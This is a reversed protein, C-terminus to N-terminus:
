TMIGVGTVHVNYLLKNFTGKSPSTSTTIIWVLYTMHHWVAECLKQLSVNREFNKYKMKNMGEAAAWLWGIITLIKDNVNLRLRWMWCPDGHLEM